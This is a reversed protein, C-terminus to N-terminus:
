RAKGRKYFKIKDRAELISSLTSLLCLAQFQNYAGGQQQKQEECKDLFKRVSDGTSYERALFLCFDLFSPSFFNEKDESTEAIEM